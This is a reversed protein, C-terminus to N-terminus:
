RCTYVENCVLLRVDVDEGGHYGRIKDVDVHNSRQTQDELANRPRM